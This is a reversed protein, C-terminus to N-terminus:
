VRGQGGPLRVQQQTATNKLGINMIQEASSLELSMELRVPHPLFSFTKNMNEHSRSGPNDPHWTVNYIKSERSFKNGWIEM